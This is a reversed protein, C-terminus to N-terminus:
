PLIDKLGGNGCLLGWRLMPMDSNKFLFSLKELAVNGGGVILLQLQDLRFFVPFFQNGSNQM